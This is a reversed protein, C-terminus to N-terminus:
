FPNMKLASPIPKEKSMTTAQAAASIILSQFLLVIALVLSYFFGHPYLLNRGRM